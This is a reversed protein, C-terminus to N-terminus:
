PCTQPGMNALRHKLFAKTPLAKTLFDSQNEDTNVYTTAITLDLNLQRIDAQAIRYHKAGAHNIAKTSQNIVGTNDTDCRTPRKQEFGLERLLHRVWIVEKTLSQHAYTEAMGTSNSIKRELKSSCSICGYLGMQCQHGSTSRSTNLDGALDADSTASLDWEGPGPFFVLGVTVTGALYRMPRGLALNVHEQTACKLFRCLLNITFCLDSRTHLLWMLAGVIEQYKKITAPTASETPLLMLAKATGPDMPTDVPRSLHADTREYKDLLEATYAGQHLKTWRKERNREIQV